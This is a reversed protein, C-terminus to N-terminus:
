HGLMKRSPATMLKGRCALEDSRGTLQVRVGKLECVVDLKVLM